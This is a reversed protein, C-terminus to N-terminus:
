ANQWEVGQKRDARERQAQSLADTEKNTYIDSKDAQTSSQKESSVLSMRCCNIYKLSQKM